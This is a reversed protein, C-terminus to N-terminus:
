PGPRPGAPGAGLVARLAREGGGDIRELDQLFEAPPLARYVRRDAQLWRGTCRVRHEMPCQMEDLKEVEDGAGLALAHIKMRVTRREPGGAGRRIDRRGPLLLPAGWTRPASRGGPLTDGGCNRHLGRHFPRRGPRTGAHKAQPAVPLADESGTHAERDPGERGTHTELFEPLPRQPYYSSIGLVEGDRVFARYEVPYGDVILTNEWPRLWVPATPRPYEFLIDFARPDDLELRCFEPRCEWEGDSLSIKVELSACYDFRMMHGPLRAKEMEQFAARLREQHDGPVDFSLCDERVLDCIRTAPVHPVDAERCLALWDGLSIPCFRGAGDEPRPSEAEARALEREVTERPIRPM